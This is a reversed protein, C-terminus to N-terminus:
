DLMVNNIMAVLAVADVSAGQQLIEWYKEVAEAVTIEGIDTLKLVVGSVPARSIVEREYRRATFLLVPLDEPGFMSRDDRAM